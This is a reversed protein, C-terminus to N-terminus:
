FLKDKRRGITTSEPTTYSPTPYYVTPYHMRTTIPVATPLPTTYHITTSPLQTAPGNDADTFIYQKRKMFQM